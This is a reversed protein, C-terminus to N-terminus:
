SVLRTFKGTKNLLSISTKNCCTIDIKWTERDKSLNSFDEDTEVILDKILVRREHLQNSPAIFVANSKLKRSMESIVSRGQGKNVSATIYHFRVKSILFNFCEHDLNRYRDFIWVVDPKHILTYAADLFDIIEKNTNFDFYRVTISNPSFAALNYFLWHKNPKKVEEISAVNPHGIATDHKLNLILFTSGKNADNSQYSLILKEFTDKYNGDLDVKITIIRGDNMLKLFFQRYLDSKPDDESITEMVFNWFVRNMVYNNEENTFLSQLLRFQSIPLTNSGKFYSHLLERDFLINM